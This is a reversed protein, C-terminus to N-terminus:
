RAHRSVKRCDLDELCFDSKDLKNSKEIEWRLRYLDSVVKPPYRERDLNTLFVCVGKSPTEVAVLRATYADSGSGLVVEADLVGDEFSLQKLAVADAFDTGEFLTRAEGVDVSKLRAKWGTKLKVVFRVDHRLCARLRDHSAYGLDFVLGYGRLAETVNFCKSDHMRAPTIEYDITNHRGLSFAKHIKLAAYDGAGPYTALLDRHLKVTESDIIIWDKVGQLVDPLLIPDNQAAALSELALREFLQELKTNFRAYFAGRAPKVHTADIYARLVDAQRGGAPSRSTLVLANVLEVIDIVSEREVVKLERAFAMVKERPLATRMVEALKTPDM